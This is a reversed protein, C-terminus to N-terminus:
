DGDRKDILEMLQRKLAKGYIQSTDYGESKLRKKLYDVSPCYTSRALEFAKEVATLRHDM